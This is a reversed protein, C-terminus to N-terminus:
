QNISRLAREYRNTASENCTNYGRSEIITASPLTPANDRMKTVVVEFCMNDNDAGADGSSSSETDLVFRSTIDGTTTIPTIDIKKGMCVASGSPPVSQGGCVAYGGSGDPAPFFGLRCDSLGAGRDLYLACEIGADASYFSQQTAKGASALTLQKITIGLIAMGVALVLAGVLAAFLLTFGKKRNSQMM